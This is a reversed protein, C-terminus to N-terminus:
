QSQAQLLDALEKAKEPFQRIVNQKESIDTKINYLEPEQKRHAPIYKWDGKLIALNSYGEQILVERGKPSKGLFTDLIDESDAAQGSPIKQNLLTAFSSVLDIQCVLADSVGPKIREPWSIIFPVRTGGEYVQTKWGRLEGNPRHSANLEVARDVYGDDLVPGNDSSFVIITNQDIGLGKLQQTIQGVIWDMELIADGRYGLTSKGKFITAPMRPVHISHLAFYLFFPRGKNEKIFDQAKKLFASGLEEDTWRSQKGGSMYGIRGIGNVITQNHGM